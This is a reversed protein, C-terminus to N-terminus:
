VFGVGAAAATARLYEAALRYEDEAKLHELLLPIERDLAALETLFTHYDLGGQGPRAEDLHVTLKDSLVIDKAHCARIRPGLKAFCERILKGNEFFRGPSNVLNVPDLHVGFAPRDIARLLAVYSDPSDPFSWPMTELTYFTRTPKVADVIARVSEVIADFAAASLNEPHPGDWKKGRSGAINVCCRAGLREALALREQCLALAKKREVEDQGLPNSWAGVEAIVVDAQRAAAVYDNELQPNAPGQQLAKPCYAASYGARRVAAAWEGPTEAAGFVPGGLRM